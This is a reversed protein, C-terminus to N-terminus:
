ILQCHLLNKERLEMTMTKQCQNNRKTKLKETLRLNNDKAENLNARYKIVHQEGKSSSGFTDDKNPILVDYKTKSKPIISRCDANSM